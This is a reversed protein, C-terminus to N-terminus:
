IHILSLDSILDKQVKGIEEDIETLLDDLTFDGLPVALMLYTGYDEQALNITQVGLAMKKEDIM